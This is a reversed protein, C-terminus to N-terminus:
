SRQRAGAPAIGVAQAALLSATLLLVAGAQHAAALPVPVALLLTSIGLSAQLLVAAMMLNVRRAVRRPLDLRWSALWVGGIACFTLTALLRHDFQIATVNEFPNLWWPTLLFWGAPFLRGDMLPFTNYVLGAHTGATFGGALITLFVLGLIGRAALGVPRLGPAASPELLRAAQWVCTAFLFLALALHATLRYQSVEVRGALGSEVMYWGLMGQLLVLVPVGGLLLGRRWPVIGRLLFVVQPLLAVLGTLRGCLRHLYEWFFIEKFQGLSMGANLAGYQPIERYKRFAEDWAAAGIPPLTGSVPQWETISLGSETLRTIGGILVMLFTMLATAILWSAVLRDAAPRHASVPSPDRSLGAATM